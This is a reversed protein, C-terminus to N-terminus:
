VSKWIGGSTAFHKVFSFESVSSARITVAVQDTVLSTFAARRVVDLTTSTPVTLAQTLLPLPNEDGV